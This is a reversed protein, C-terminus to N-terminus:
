GRRLSSLGLGGGLLSLGAILLMPLPSATAPLEQSGAQAAPDTAPTQVHAEGGNDDDDLADEVKDAADEAAKAAADGAQEIEQGAKELTEGLAAVPTVVLASLERDGHYEVRVQEGVTIAQPGTTLDRDVVFTMRVGDGTRITLMQPTVEVVEGSVTRHLSEQAPPPPPSQALAITTMALLIAVCSGIIRYKM